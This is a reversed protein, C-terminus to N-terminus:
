RGPDAKAQDRAQRLPHDEAFKERAAERQEIQVWAAGAQGEVHGVDGGALFAEAATYAAADWLSATEAALLQRLSALLM